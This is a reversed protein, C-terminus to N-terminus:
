LVDADNISEQDDYYGQEVWEFSEVIIGNGMEQVYSASSSIPRIIFINGNWDKFVKNYGNFLFKEFDDRQKVVSNRNIQKTKLYDYGMFYVSISGNKYDNDSNQIVTPYKKGIPQLIGTPKNKTDGGYSLEIMLNYCQGSKDSIFSSNWQPTVTALIYNGEIDGNMTPVLAYTQEIGYPVTYDKYELNFLLNEATLNINCLEIWTKTYKDMRKVKFGKITNMDVNSTGGKTNGDFNCYIITDITTETPEEETELVDGKDVVLKYFVGNGINVYTLDQSLPKNVTTKPKYNEYQSNIYKKDQTYEYKINNTLNGWEAITQIKSIQKLHCIWKGNPKCQVFLYLYVNGNSHEVGESCIYAGDTSTVEVYDQTLGRVYRMSVVEKNDESTLTAIKYGIQAPNFWTRLTFGDDKNIIFGNHFTCKPALNPYQEWDVVTNVLDIADNNVYVPSNPTVQGFIFSMKSVIDVYGDCNKAVVSLPSESIIDSYHIKFNIFENDDTSVQIGQVTEVEWQLKYNHNNLLGTFTYLVDCPPPAQNYLEGSDEILNENEDYLYIKAYQLLNKQAQNYSLKVTVTSSSLTDGDKINLSVTPTDYCYFSELPSWSSSEGSANFTRVQVAYYINNSLTNAPITQFYNYSNDTHDYVTVGTINNTIKIENKVVQDGGDQVDFSLIYDKTADFAGISPIYPTILAM